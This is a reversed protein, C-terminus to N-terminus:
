QRTGLLVETPVQRIRADTEPEISEFDAAGGLATEGTDQTDLFIRAPAARPEEIRQQADGVLQDNGLAKRRDLALGRALPDVQGEPPQLTGVLAGRGLARFHERCAIGNAGTLQAEAIMM